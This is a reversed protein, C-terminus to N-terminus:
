IAFNSLVSYYRKLLRRKSVQGVFPMTTENWRHILGGIDLNRFLLVIGCFPSALDNAFRCKKKLLAAINKSTKKSQHESFYFFIKQLELKPFMTFLQLNTQTEDLTRKLKTSPEYDNLRLSAQFTSILRLLPLTPFVKKRM